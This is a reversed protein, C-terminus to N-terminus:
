TDVGRRYLNTYMFLSEKSNFHKSTPVLSGWIADCTSSTTWINMYTYPGCSYPDTSSTNVWYEPSMAHQQVRNWAGLTFIHVEQEFPAQVVAFSSIAVWQQDPLGLNYIAEKLWETQYCSWEWRVPPDIISRTMGEHFSKRAGDERTKLYNGSVSTVWWLLKLSHHKHYWLLKISATHKPNIFRSQM